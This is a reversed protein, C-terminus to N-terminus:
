SQDQGETQTIRNRLERLAPRLNQELRSALEGLDRTDFAASMEPTHRFHQQGFFEDRYVNYSINLNSAAAFDSYDIIVYSGNITRTPRGPGIFLRFGEIEGPLRAGYPWEAIKKARFISEYQRGGDLDSLTSALKVTLIKELGALNGCIFSIDYFENLGVAVRALFDRTTQDYLVSLSRLEQENRYSFINYQTGSEALDLSLSFGAQRDPLQQLFPWANVQAIIESMM